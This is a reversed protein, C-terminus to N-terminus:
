KQREKARVGVSKGTADRVAHFPIPKKADPLTISAGIDLISQRLPKLVAHDDEVVIAIKESPKLSLAERVEKPITMQGKSTLVAIPM